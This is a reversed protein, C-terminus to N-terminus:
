STPAADATRAVEPSATRPLLRWLACGILLGLAAASVPRTALLFVISGAPIAGWTAGLVTGATGVGLVIPLVLVPLPAHPRIRPSPRPTRRGLALMVLVAIGLLGIVSSLYQLWSHVPLGEVVASLSPVRAVVWGHSHTFADWVIHTWAGLVLAIVAGIVTRTASAADGPPTSPAPLRERIWGPAADRLPARIVLRWLVLLCIGLVLDVTVTGSPAHTTGYAIPLGTFLILDPVMAGIALADLPLGLRRLPVVALPHALTFPVGRDYTAVHGTLM